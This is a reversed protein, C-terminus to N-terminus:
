RGILPKVVRIINECTRVVQIGMTNHIEVWQRAKLNGREAATVIMAIGNNRLHPNTHGSEAEASQVYHLGLVYQASANQKAEKELQEFFESINVGAHRKFQLAYYLAKEFDQQVGEEGNLYMISLRNLAELHGFAGAKELRELGRERDGEVFHIQALANNATASNQNAALTLYYVAQDLMQDIAPDRNFPQGQTEESSNKSLSSIQGKYFWGLSEKAYYDGQEAAKKWEEVSREENAKLAKQYATKDPIKSQVTIVGTEKNVIVKELNKNKRYYEGLRNQAEIFGLESGKELYPEIQQRQLISFLGILPLHFLTQDTKKIEYDSSLQIDVQRQIKQLEQEICARINGECHTGIRGQIVDNIKNSIVSGGINGGASVLVGIIQGQSDLLPSGSMGDLNTRDFPMVWHPTQKLINKSKAYDIASNKQPYGAIFFEGELSTTKRESLYNQFDGEVELIALDAYASVAKLAKIKIDAPVGNQSLFISDLQDHISLVGYVNSVLGHLATVLLGNELLFGTGQRGRIDLNYVAGGAQVVPQPIDVEQSFLAFSTFFCLGAVICKFVKM